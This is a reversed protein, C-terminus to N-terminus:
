PGKGGPSTAADRTQNPVSEPLAETALPATEVRVPEVARAGRGVEARVFLWVVAALALAGIVAAIRFRANV